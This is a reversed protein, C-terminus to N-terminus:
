AGISAIKPQVRYTRALQRAAKEAAARSRFGRITVRYLPRSRNNLREVVVDEYGRRTVESRLGNAEARTRFSALRVHYRGDSEEPLAHPRDRRRTSRVAEDWDTTTLRPTTGSAQNLGETILRQVDGWLDRAGLVAVLVERDGDTAAGVFCRKAERTYGTKGIVQPGRPLGLLRNHSHLRITRRSGGSPRIVITATSLVDRLLPYRLVGQLITVLDRATSYHDPDPLGNPNVFQSQAAGLERAANNMQRAFAPVSGSLGEALVVSADNASNLLIAYLLDLANVQWGPQLYIKSPEAASANRSVSLDEDLKGSRVAVYATLLKTTSAPPLPTDANRAYLVMGTRHDMAIAAKATLEPPEGSAVGPSSLVVALLFLWWLTVGIRKV